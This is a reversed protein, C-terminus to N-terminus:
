TIMEEAPEEDEVPEENEEEIMSGWGEGHKSPLKDVYIPDYDDVGMYIFGHPDDKPIAEEFSKDTFEAVRARDEPLRLRFCFVHESESIVFSPIFRPRQSVSIGGIGLEGGATWIDRLAPPYSTGRAGGALLYTEDCYVLVNGSDFIVRLISEWYEAPDRGAVWPVRVRVPETGSILLERSDRDWPALGWDGLSNKPDLAVFRRIKRTIHRTLYTKGSRTKGFIATREDAPINIEIPQTEDM